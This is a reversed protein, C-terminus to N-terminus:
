YLNQSFYRVLRIFYYFLDIALNCNIQKVSFGGATGSARKADNHPSFAPLIKGKVIGNKDNLYQIIHDDHAM